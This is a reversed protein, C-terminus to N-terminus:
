DSPLCQVLDKLVYTAVVLSYGIMLYATKYLM